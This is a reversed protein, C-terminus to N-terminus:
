YPAKDMGYLLGHNLLLESGTLWSPYQFLESLYGIEKRAEISGIPHGLMYGEGNEHFLLGLM